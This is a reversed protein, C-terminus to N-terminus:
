IKMLINQTVNVAYLQSHRRTSEAQFLHIEHLRDTGDSDDYYYEM